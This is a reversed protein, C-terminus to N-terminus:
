RRLAKRAGAAHALAQTGGRGHSSPEGPPQGDPRRQHPPGGRRAQAEPRNEVRCYAPLHRTQRARHEQFSLEAPKAGPEAHVPAPRQARRYPRSREHGGREAAGAM